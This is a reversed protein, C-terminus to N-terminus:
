FFVLCIWFMWAILKSEVNGSVWIGCYIAMMWVPIATKYFMEKGNFLVILVYLLAAAIPLVIQSWVGVGKVGSSFVIRAVVSGIMCLTMLWTLVNKRSVFYHQRKEM